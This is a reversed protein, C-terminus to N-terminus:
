IYMEIASHLNEIRVFRGGEATEGDLPWDVDEDTACV